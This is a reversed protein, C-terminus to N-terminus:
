HEIARFLETVVALFAKAQEPFVLISAREREDNEGKFRSETIKLYRKGESTMAVDFFYTRAGARIQRSELNDKTSLHNVEEGVAPTIPNAAARSM